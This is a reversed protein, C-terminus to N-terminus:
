KPTKLTGKQPPPPIKRSSDAIGMGGQGGEGRSPPLLDPSAGQSGKLPTVGRLVGMLPHHM